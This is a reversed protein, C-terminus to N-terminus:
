YQLWGFFIFNLFWCIAVVAAILLVAYGIAILITAAAAITGTGFLAFGFITALLVLFGITGLLEWDVDLQKAKVTKIKKLEISELNSSATLNRGREARDSSSSSITSKVHISQVKNNHDDVSGPEEFFEDGSEPRIEAPDAIHVKEVLEKSTPDYTETSEFEELHIMPSRGSPLSTRFYVGREPTLKKVACASTLSLIILIFLLRKM